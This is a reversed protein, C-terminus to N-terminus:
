QMERIMNIIKEKINLAAASAFPSVYDEYSDPLGEVSEPFYGKYDNAYGVLIAKSPEVGAKIDLITKSFPEGPIGAIAIDGLRILQVDASLSRQGQYQEAQLMLIEAGQIKTVVKRIDGSPASDQQLQNLEEKLALLIRDAEDKAPFTKLPLEVTSVYSKLEDPELPRASNAARVVATAIIQGLRTVEGFDSKRRTFRTSVDGAAGNTFLIVASPFIDKLMKRSAGPYDASLLLNGAGMVTPHCGYNYLIAIPNANEDDVRIVSVQQDSLGKDPDNRNLGVGTGVDFGLSLEAPRLLSYAWKCAGIVKRIIMEQLIEDPKGNLFLSDSLFVLPGSHTHSCALMIDNEAVGIEKHLAARLKNTFDIQIGLLDFTIILSAAEGLKLLLVQAKLADHIGRSPGKRDAYGAMKVGIPPTIDIEVAAANIM